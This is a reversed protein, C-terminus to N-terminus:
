QGSGRRRHPKSNRHSAIHATLRKHSVLGEVRVCLHTGARQARAERAGTLDLTIHSLVRMAETFRKKM